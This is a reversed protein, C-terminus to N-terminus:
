GHRTVADRALALRLRPWAPATGAVAVADGGGASRSVTGCAGDIRAPGVEITFPSKVAM